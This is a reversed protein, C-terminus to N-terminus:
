YQLSWNFEFYAVKTRTPDSLALVRGVPVSVTGAADAMKAANNSLFMRADYAQSITFGAVHGRKCVSVSDGNGVTELAVGRPQAAVGAATATAPLMRGNADQYVVDGATIAAGAIAPYVEAQHPWLIAVDKPTVVFDAM